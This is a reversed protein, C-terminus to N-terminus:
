RLVRVDSKTNHGCVTLLESLCCELASIPVLKLVDLVIAEFRSIVLLKDSRKILNPVEHFDFHVINQLNQSM